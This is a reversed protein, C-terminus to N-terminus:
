IELLPITRVDADASRLGHAHLPLVVPGHLAGMANKANCDMRSMMANHVTASSKCSIEALHSAQVMCCSLVVDHLLSIRNKRRDTLRNQLISVVARCSKQVIFSGCCSQGSCCRGVGRVVLM